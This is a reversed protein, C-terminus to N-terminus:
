AFYGNDRMDALLGPGKPSWGLTERTLISSTPNDIAVFHAFWEFHTQAEDESLGRVPVGIGRGITEAIERMPIGEEAVGHLRAGPPANEVALRFLHAADSRHVAPWRNTGDGVFAAIGTRRAVDILMPMFGHDGTGHVSPPLRIISTRVGRSAASLAIAESAARYATASAPDDQETVTRGPTLIATGSTLVFPKGSGELAGIMAEVAQRDTESAVERPTSWDHNFATHIVGDCIGTADALSGPDSLDGRHAEVGMQALAEDSAVSRALGVVTHGAAHLESVIARGIFGTAGTLFIRM